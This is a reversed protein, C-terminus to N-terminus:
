FPKYTYTLNGKNRRLETKTLVIDMNFNPYTFNKESM